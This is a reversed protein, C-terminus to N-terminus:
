DSYIKIFFMAAAGLLFSAYQALALVFQNQKIMLQSGHNAPRHGHLLEPILDALAIYLFNGATFALVAPKVSTSFTDAGDASANLQLFSVSLIVGIFSSLSIAMNALVIGQPTYGADFLIVFDGLEHPIEHLFVAVSTSFGISLSTSYSVGLALGDVFNHIFDSMLVLLGVPKRGVTMGRMSTSEEFSNLEMEIGDTSSITTFRASTENGIHGHGHGHHYHQLLREGIFFVFVGILM